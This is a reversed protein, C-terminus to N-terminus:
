KEDFILRRYPGCIIFSLIKVFIEEAIRSTQKNSKISRILLWIQNLNM